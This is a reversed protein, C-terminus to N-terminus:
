EFLATLTNPGVIGDVKLGNNEQFQRVADDTGSGFIGEVGNTDYGLCYLMAQITHTINGEDGECVQVGDFAERTKPGVIGDVDLKRNYQINLETQLAKVLANKTKPGYLGDVAIGTGYNNNIWNQIDSITKDRSPTYSPESTSVEVNGTAGAIEEFPYNRGPCSTSDVDCHRQVLSIGYKNKIYAVIEKLSNKQAEPMTEHEFNGEACIGISNYNSGYAHAGVKDEPRLRYIEGNKRVFFHYGAGSWGNNLHWRHIDEATCSEAAAHHLIIRETSERTDMGKYSFNTEIIEM